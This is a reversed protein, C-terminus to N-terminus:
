SAQKALYMPLAEVMPRGAESRRLREAERELEVVARRLEAIDDIARNVAAMHRAIRSRAVADFLEGRREFLLDDISKETRSM